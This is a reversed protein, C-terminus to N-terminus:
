VSKRKRLCRSSTGAGPDISKGRQAYLARRRSRRISAEKKDDM